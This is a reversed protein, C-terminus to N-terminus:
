AAQRKYVAIQWLLTKQYFSRQFGNLHLLRDIASTRHPFIRFPNRFLRYYLNFFVFGVRIVWNERPYVLGYLNNARQSSLGVLSNLDHYCCIVRDLTVVDAPQIDDAIEVFDSHISSVRDAHGQNRAEEQVSSIYAASADVGVARAAGAKLLEHQVAGVGGGIDLLTKGKIGEATIADIL